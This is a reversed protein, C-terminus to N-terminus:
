LTFLDWQVLVLHSTSFMFREDIMMRNGHFCYGSYLYYYLIEVMKQGTAMSDPGVIGTVM